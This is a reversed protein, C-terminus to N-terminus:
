FWSAAPKTPKLKKKGVRHKRTRGCGTYVSRKRIREITCVVNMVREQAGKGVSKVKRGANTKGLEVEIGEPIKYPKRDGYGM